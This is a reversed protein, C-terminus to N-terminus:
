DDDEADNMAFYDNAAKRLKIRLWEVQGITTSLRQDEPHSTLWCPDGDDDVYEALLIYGTVMGPRGDIRLQEAIADMIPTENM